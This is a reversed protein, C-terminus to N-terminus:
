TKSRKNARGKVAKAKQNRPRPLLVHEGCYDGAETEPWKAHEIITGFLVNQLTHEGKEEPPEGEEEALPRIAHLLNVLMLVPDPSSPRPANRRCWGTHIYRAKTGAEWYRCTECRDENNM